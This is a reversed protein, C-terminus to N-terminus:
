NGSVTTKDSTANNLDSFLDSPSRYYKFGTHPALTERAQSITSDSAPPVFEPAIDALPVLVFARNLAEPHPIKLSESDVIEQGYFLIDLDIIRPGWHILKERGMEKEISQLRRLLDHPSLDTSIRAVMNLFDAQELYGFPPTEYVASCVNLETDPMLRIRNLADLLNDLRNGLNSGLGVFVNEKTFGM